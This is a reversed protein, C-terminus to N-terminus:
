KNQADAMVFFELLLLLIGDCYKGGDGSRVGSRVDCRMCLPALQFVQGM